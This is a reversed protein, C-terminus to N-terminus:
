NYDSLRVWEGKPDKIYWFKWGNVSKRDVIEKAAGSPSTYNKNKYKINGFPTLIARYEKGKYTKYLTTRKSVLGKLTKGGGSSRKRLRAKKEGFMEEFDDKQKEKVMLKLKKLM